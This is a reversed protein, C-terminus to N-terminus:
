TKSEREPMEIRAEDIEFKGCEFAKCSGLGVNRMAALIAVIDKEILREAFFRFEFAFRAGPKVIESYHVISKAGQPTSVRGLFKEFGTEPVGGNEGRLYIHNMFEGDLISFDWGRIRGMETVDGKSGRKDKAAFLGLRSAAQKMCAKIMWDGIWPDDGDRRLVNIGYIEREDIEDGNEPHSLPRTGIEEKLIRQVASQAEDGDLELHHEVFAAVGKPDAPQGGVMRTTLHCKVFAVGTLDEFKSEFDKSSYTRITM